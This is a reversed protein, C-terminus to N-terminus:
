RKEPYYKKLLAEWRARQDRLIKLSPDTDIDLHSEGTYDYGKQFAMELYEFAQDPKNQHSYLVAYDMYIARANDPQRSLAKELLQVAEEYRGTKAYILGLNAHAYDVNLSDLHIATLLQQEAEKLRNAKFYVWGLTNYNQAVSDGQIQILQEANAIAKDFEGLHIYLVSLNNYVCYFCVDESVSNIVELFLKEAERYRHMKALITGKGFKAYLHASDIALAKEIWILASDFEERRDYNIAMQLYPFDWGPASELTKKHYYYASDFNEPYTRIMECLAQPMDPQYKIATLLANRKEELDTTNDALFYYRRAQLLPYMYHQEGLLEIAKELQAPYQKYPFKEGTLMRRTFGGKLYANLMQQADDQLAAAYNRRMAAHLRELNPERILQEYYTDACAHEPELFQKDRLAKQFAAYLQRVTSDVSALVEEEIGRSETATFLQMQGKQGKQLQELLAPNVDVLKETKNGITMPNQNEPAVEASVLDELYRDIEKLTVINDQDADAMGYLGNLLHYSFAGRGGGWQEGEISYEDPQCSLIKIENEFLASLNQATAQAGGINSGALKGSRCADTIVTVKAKNQISLTSVIDKLFFISYTGGGTYGHHPADWCLLFGPQSISRREVDGHGSFYIIVQDGEKCEDVLWWLAADFKGLTVQENTLLLLHDDDLAGGAPSRLFNAFAEADRHAYKLDPILPDQYNSIGAVVAYTNTPHNSPQITPHNAPTVGREQASLAGSLLFLIIGLLLKTKM